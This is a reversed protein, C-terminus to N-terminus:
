IPHSVFFSLLFAHAYTAYQTQHAWSYLVAPCVQVVRLPVEVNVFNKM